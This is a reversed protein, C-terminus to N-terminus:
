RLIKIGEASPNSKIEELISKYEMKAEKIKQKAGESFNMAIIKIKKTVNGQSLVKGPVVITEGDKAQADIEGLNLSPCNRRSGSLMGAVNLWVEGSKKATMITEVVEPNTKRHAQESIKTKSKNM